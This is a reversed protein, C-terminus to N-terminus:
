TMPTYQQQLEVFILPAATRTTYRLLVVLSNATLRVDTDIRVYLNM